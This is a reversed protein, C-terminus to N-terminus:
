ITFLDVTLDAKFSKLIIIPGNVIKKVGGGLFFDM